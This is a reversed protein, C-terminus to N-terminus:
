PSNEATDVTLLDESRGLLDIGAWPEKGCFLCYGEEWALDLRCKVNMITKELSALDSCEYFLIM